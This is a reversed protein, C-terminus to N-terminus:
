AFTEEPANQMFMVCAAWAHSFYNKANKTLMHASGLADERIRVAKAFLTAAKRYEGLEMVVSGLNVMSQSCDLHHDGLLKKRVDLAMEHVRQADSLRGIEAYLRGMDNLCRPYYPHDTTRQYLDLARTMSEEAEKFHYSDHYLIGLKNLCEATQMDDSGPSHTRIDLARKALPIGKSHEGVSWYLYSLHLCCEAVDDNREVSENSELVELAHRLLSKAAQAARNTVPERHAIGHTTRGGAYSEVIFAGADIELRAHILSENSAHDKPTAHRLRRSLINGRSPLTHTWYKHLAMNDRKVLHSFTAINTVYGTLYQQLHNLLSAASMSKSQTLVKGEVYAGDPGHLQNADVNMGAGAVINGPMESAGSSAPSNPVGHDGYRPSNRNGENDDNVVFSPDYQDDAVTDTDPDSADGRDEVTVCTEERTLDQLCDNAGTATSIAEYFPVMPWTQDDVGEVRVSYSVRSSQRLDQRQAKTDIIAYMLLPLLEDARCLDCPHATFYHAVSARLLLNYDTSSLVDQQIAEVTHPSSLTLLPGPECEGHQEKTCWGVRGTHMSGKLAHQSTSHRLSQQTFPQTTADGCQVSFLYKGVAYVIDRLEEKSIDIDSDGDLYPDSCLAVLDEIYLGKSVLALMSLMRRVVCGQAQSTRTEGAHTRHWTALKWILHRCATFDDECLARWLNVDSSARRWDTCVASANVVDSVQLFSFIKVVLDESLQSAM